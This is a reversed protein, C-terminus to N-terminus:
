DSRIWVSERDDIKKNFNKLTDRKVQENKQENYEKITNELEKNSM